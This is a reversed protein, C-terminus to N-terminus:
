EDLWDMIDETEAVVHKGGTTDLEVIQWAYCSMCRCSTSIGRTLYRPATGAELLEYLGNSLRVLAGEAFYNVLRETSFSPCDRQVQAVREASFLKKM